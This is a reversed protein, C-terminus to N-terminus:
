GVPNIMINAFRVLMKSGQNGFLLGACYMDIEKKAKGPTMILVFYKVSGLFEYIMNLADQLQPEPPLSSKANDIAARIMEIGASFESEDDPVKCGYEEANGGKTRLFIGTEFGKM